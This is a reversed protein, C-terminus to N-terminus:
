FDTNLLDIDSDEEILYNLIEEETLEVEESISEQHSVEIMNYLQIEDLYYIDNELAAIIENESLLETKASPVLISIGAYALLFLAALSAVWSLTRRVTVMSITPKQEDQEASEIKDMVKDAFTEFYNDPVAFQKNDKLKDFKKLIDKESAM